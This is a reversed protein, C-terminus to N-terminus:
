KRAGQTAVRAANGILVASERGENNLVIDWAGDQNLDLVCLGRSNFVRHDLGLPPGADAFKGNGLNRFLRNPSKLCGVLLDVRGDRDYDIWFGSTAHIPSSLEGALGTVDMFKGKGDNRFLKCGAAHPVFLDPLKDGNFDGFVPTTRGAPLQIGSDKVARFGQPTNLVLLGGYLFDPRNDGNVDAVAISAGELRFDEVSFQFSKATVDEFSWMPVAPLAVKPQFYFAWEGQGQCIKLLLRNMGAKLKLTVQNQDPGAPRYVNEALVKEGNLWVTLTDDSGLSV